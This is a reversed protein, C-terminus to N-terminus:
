KRFGVNPIKVKFTQGEKNPYDYDRIWHNLERLMKYTTGQTTAFVSWDIPRESIEVIRFDTLPKRYQEPKIIFGYRPPNEVLLKFSLVRFVYRLTEEPLFADYYNKVDQKTIRRLVGADGLNYAAAALVWSGLKEYSDKLHKCAAETALEIDYRMDVQPGVTLGFGRGTAPMLQWLGAAGAGSLANANLGSEAMCLFKFDDPVGNRKLIPEIVAFIRPANLLTLLTRSHMYTTTLIERELSERTDYNELPVREGAFTLAVPLEPLTTNAYPNSLVQANLCSAFLFLTLLLITFYRM